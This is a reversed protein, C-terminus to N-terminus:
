RAMARRNLGPSPIRIDKAAYALGFCFDSQCAMTELHSTAAGPHFRGNRPDLVLSVRQPAGTCTFRDRSQDQNKKQELSISWSTGRMRPPCEARAHVVVNGTRPVWEYSRVKLNFDGVGASASTAPLAVVAFLATFLGALVRRRM